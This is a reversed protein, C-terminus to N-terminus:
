QTTTTVTQRRAFNSVSTSLKAQAEKYDKYHGFSKEKNLTLNGHKLIHKISSDDLKIYNTVVHKAFTLDNTYLSLSYKMTELTENSTAITENESESLTKIILKNYELASFCRSLIMQYNVGLMRKVSRDEAVSLIKYLSKQSAMGSDIRYLVRDLYIAFMTPILGNDPENVISPRFYKETVDDVNVEADYLRSIAYIFEPLTAVYGLEKAHSLAISSYNKSSVYDDQCFHLLALLTNVKITEEKVILDAVKDADVGGWTEPDEKVLEKVIQRQYARDDSLETEM